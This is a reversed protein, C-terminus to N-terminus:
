IQLLDQFSLHVYDAIYLDCPPLEDKDHSSLVGVVRMGANKAATIGSFSDEFVLCDEPEVGLNHASKLYVEPHPKHKNVDESALLSGFHPGLGIEGLIMELNARPASTAVGLGISQSVLEEFFTKFGAIPDVYPKYLTRFLGEKEEEMELLESGEIPRGLFHSLIYSNSKGYMHEKFAEETPKLERKEFFTKFAVSHYPNTHCIVGDMDFIVASLKKM